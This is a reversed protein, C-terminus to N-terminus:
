STMCEDVRVEWDGPPSLRGATRAGGARGGTTAASLETSLEVAGVRRGAALHLSAKSLRGLWLSERASACFTMALKIESVATQKRSQALEGHM